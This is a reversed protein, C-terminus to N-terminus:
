SGTASLTHHAPPAETSTGGPHRLGTCTGPAWLGDIAQEAAALGKAALSILEAM